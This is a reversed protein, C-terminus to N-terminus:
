IPVHFANIVFPIRKGAVFLPMQLLIVFFTLVALM